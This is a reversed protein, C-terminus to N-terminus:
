WRTGAERLILRHESTRPRLRLGVGSEIRITMSRSAYQVAFLHDANQHDTHDRPPLQFPGEPSPSPHIRPLKGLPNQERDARRGPGSGIVTDDRGLPQVLLEPVPGCTDERQTAPKESQVPEVMLLGVGQVPFM